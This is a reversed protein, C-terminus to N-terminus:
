KKVHEPRDVALTSFYREDTVFSLDGDFATGKLFASDIPPLKLVFGTKLASGLGVETPANLGVGYAYERGGLENAFPKPGPLAIMSKRDASEIAFTLDVFCSFISFAERTEMDGGVSFDKLAKAYSDDAKILGSLVATWAFRGGAAARGVNVISTPYQPGYDDVFRHLQRFQLRGPFQVDAGIHTLRAGFCFILQMPHGWVEGDQIPLEWAGDNRVSQHLKGSVRAVVGLPVIKQYPLDFINVLTKEATKKALFGRDLLMGVANGDKLDFHVKTDVDKREHAIRKADDGTAIDFAVSFNPDPSLPIHSFPKIGRYMKDRYFYFPSFVAYYGLADESLAKEFPDDQLLEKDDGESKTLPTRPIVRMLSSKYIPGEDRFIGDTRMIQLSVPVGTLNEKTSKARFAVVVRIEDFPGIKFLAKDIVIWRKSARDRVYVRAWSYQKDIVGSFNVSFARALAGCDATEIGEIPFLHSRGFQAHHAGSEQLESWSYQSPTLAKMLSETWSSKEGGCAYMWVEDLPLEPWLVAPFSSGMLYVQIYKQIRYDQVKRDFRARDYMPSGLREILRLLGIIAIVRSYWLVSPDNPKSERPLARVCLAHQRGLDLLRNGQSRHRLGFRDVASSITNLLHLGLDKAVGAIAVVQAVEGVVPIMSIGGMVASAAQTIVEMEAADVGARAANAMLRLAELKAWAETNPSAHYHDHYRKLGTNMRAYQLDRDAHADILASISKAAEEITLATDIASLVGKLGKVAEFGRLAKTESEAKIRNLLDASVKSEDLLGVKLMLKQKKDTLSKRIETEMDRFFNPHFFVKFSEVDKSIKLATNGDVEMAAWIVEQLKGRVALWKEKGKLYARSGQYVALLTKSVELYEPDTSLSPLAQALAKDALSLLYKNLDKRQGAFVGDAPMFGTVLAKKEKYIAAHARASAIANMGAEYVPSAEDSADSLHPFRDAFHLMISSEVTPMAFVHVDIDFFVTKIAFAVEFSRHVMGSTTHVRQDVFTQAPVSATYRGEPLAPGIAAAVRYSATGHGPLALTLLDPLEVTKIANAGCKLQCGHLAAACSADVLVLVCRNKVILQGRFEGSDFFSLLKKEAETAGPKLKASTFKIPLTTIEDTIGAQAAHNLLKTQWQDGYAAVAEKLTGTPALSLRLPREAIRQVVDLQEGKKGISMLQGRTDVYNMSLNGKHDRMMLIRDAVPELSHDAVGTKVDYAGSMLYLRHIPATAM